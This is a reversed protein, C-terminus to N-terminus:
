PSGYEGLLPARPGIGAAGSGGGPFPSEMCREERRGSARSVNHRRRSAEAGNAAFGSPPEGGAGTLWAVAAGAENQVGSQLKSTFTQLLLPQPM